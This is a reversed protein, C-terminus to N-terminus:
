SEVRMIIAKMIKDKSSYLCRIPYLVKGLPHTLLNVKLSDLLYNLYLNMRTVM